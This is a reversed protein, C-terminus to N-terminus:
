VKSIKVEREPRKVAQSSAWLVFQSRHQIPRQRMLFTKSFSVKRNGTSFQVDMEQDDM